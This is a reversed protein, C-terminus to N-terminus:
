SVVDYCSRRLSCLCRDRGVRRPEVLVHSGFRFQGAGAVLVSLQPAQDASSTVPEREGIILLDGRGALRDGPCTKPGSSSSGAKESASMRAGSM